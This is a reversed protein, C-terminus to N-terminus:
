AACGDRQETSLIGDGHADAEAFAAADAIDSRLTM